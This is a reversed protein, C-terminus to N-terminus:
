RIEAYGANERLGSRATELRMTSCITSITRDSARLRKRGQQIVSAPALGLAVMNEFLENAKVADVSFVDVGKENLKKCLAQLVFRWESFRHYTSTTLM